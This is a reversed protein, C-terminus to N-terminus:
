IKVPRLGQVWITVGKGSYRPIHFELRCVLYFFANLLINIEKLNSGSSKKRVLKILPRLLFLTSWVRTAELGSNEILLILSNKSYRRVHNVATDHHSWLNPDEPVSILFKGGKRLVRHIESVVQDDEWIHELVDLCIVIDFSEDGFPLHRGDGQIVPIGKLKQIAVGLDSFELSSVQHGFNSIHLTNGGTASGLDLVDLPKANRGEFWKTLQFKRAQYWFHKSELSDLVLIESEDM